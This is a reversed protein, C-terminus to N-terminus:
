LVEQTAPNLGAIFEAPLDHSAALGQVHEALEPPILGTTLGAGWAALFTRPNGEAAQLLGGSIMREMVPAAASAAPIFQNVAPDQGLALGFQIWQPEPEGDPRGEIQELKRAAFALAAKAQSLEGANAMAPNTIALRDYPNM